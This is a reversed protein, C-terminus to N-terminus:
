DTVQMLKRYITYSDKGPIVVVLLWTTPDTADLMPLDECSASGKPATQKVLSFPGPYPAVVSADKLWRIFGPLNVDQSENGQFAFRRNLRQRYYQQEQNTRTSSWEPSGVFACGNEGTYCAFIAEPGFQTKIREALKRPLMQVRIQTVEEASLQFQSWDIDSKTPVLPIELVRNLQPTWKPLDQSVTFQTPIRGVVESQLKPQLTEQWPSFAPAAVGVRPQNIMASLNYVMPGVAGAPIPVNFPTDAPLPNLATFLGKEIKTEMRRSNSVYLLDFRNTRVIDNADDVDHIEVSRVAESASMYFNSMWFTFATAAITVVPFTLWTLKRARLWGLVYYDGPGIMLIFSGLIMALVWTPVM